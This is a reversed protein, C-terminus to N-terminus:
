KVLRRKKEHLNNGYLEVIEFFIISILELVLGLWEVNSLTENILTIVPFFMLPISICLSMILGTSRMDETTKFTQEKQNEIDILKTINLRIGDNNKNNHCEIMDKTIEGIEKYSILSDFEKNIITQYILSSSQCEKGFEKIADDIDDAKSLILGFRIAVSCVIMNDKNSDMKKLRYFGMSISTVISITLFLLFMAISNDFVFLSFSVLFGCLLDKWCCKILRILKKENKNM